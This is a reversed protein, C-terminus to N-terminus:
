TLMTADVITKCVRKGRDRVNVSSFGLTLPIGLPIDVILGLFCVYETTVSTHKSVFIINHPNGLLM